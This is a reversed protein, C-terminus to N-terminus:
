SKKARQRVYEYLDRVRKLQKIDQNPIAIDFKEKLRDAIEVVDVEDAGLDEILDADPTIKSKDIGLQIVLVWNVREELSMGSESRPAVAPPPINPSTEEPAPESTPAPVSENKPKEVPESSGCALSGLGGIFLLIILLVKMRRKMGREM